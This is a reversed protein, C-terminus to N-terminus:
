VEWSLPSALVHTEYLLINWHDHQFANQGRLHGDELHLSPESVRMPPRYPIPLLVSFLSDSDQTSEMGPEAGNHPTIRPTM